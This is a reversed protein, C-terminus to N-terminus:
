TCLASDYIWCAVRATSVHLVSTIAEYPGYEIWFDTQVVMGSLVNRNIKNQHKLEELHAEEFVCVQLQKTVVLTDKIYYNFYHHYYYYFAVVTDASFVKCM